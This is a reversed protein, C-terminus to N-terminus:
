ADAQNPPSKPARVIPGHHEILAGWPLTNNQGALITVRKWRAYGTGAEKRWVVGDKDSVRAGTKSPEDTLPGTYTDTVRVDAPLPAPVPESAADALPGYMKVLEDWHLRGVVMIRKGDVPTTCTWRTHGRRWVDGTRDRVEAGTKKPEVMPVWGNVWTRTDHQHPLDHGALLVCELPERVTEQRKIVPYSRVPCAIDPDMPRTSEALTSHSLLPM